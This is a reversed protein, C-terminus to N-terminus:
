GLAWRWRAIGATMMALFSASVVGLCVAGAIDFRGVRLILERWHWPTGAGVYWKVHTHCIVILGHTRSSYPTNSTTALGIKHVALPREDPRFAVANVLVMGVIMIMLM